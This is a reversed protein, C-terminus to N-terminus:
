KAVSSRPLVEGFRFGEGAVVVPRPVPPLRHCQVVAMSATQAEPGARKVDYLVVM